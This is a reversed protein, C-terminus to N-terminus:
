RSVETKTGVTTATGTYDVVSGRIRPPRKFVGYSAQLCPKRLTVTTRDGQEDRDCRVSSVYFNGLLGNVRDDVSCMSDSEWWYARSQPDKQQWHGRVVYVAQWSEFIGRLYRWLAMARADDGNFVDGEAFNNVHRFPLANKNVFDGRRKTANQNAPDLTLDGGVMEGVCTVNTWITSIDEEVYCDLVDNTNRAPDAWDHLEIRFKPTQDFDPQWVQLYGDCSVNVLRNIRRCYQSLIDAVKDGPEVQVYVLVGLAQFLDIAAQARGNNVGQRLLRNTANDAAIGRFGWSPDIWAPDQLLTILKAEQLHYWLPADNNLLHWGLDACDLQISTGGASCSQRRRVIIGLHKLTLRNGNVNPNRLFLQITQGRIFKDTYKGRPNPVQVSFADGLQLVDSSYSFGVTNVLTTPASVNPGYASQGAEIVQIVAETAQDQQQAFNM